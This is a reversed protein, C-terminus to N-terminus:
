SPYSAQACVLAVPRFTPIYSLQSLAANAIGLNRTRAGSDGGIAQRGRYSLQVSRRRGLDRTPPELGELPVLVWRNQTYFGAQMTPNIVKRQQRDRDSQAVPIGM